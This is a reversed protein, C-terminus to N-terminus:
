PYQDMLDWVGSVKHWEMLVAAGYAGQQRAAGFAEQAEDLRDFELRLAPESGSRDANQWLVLQYPKTQSQIM